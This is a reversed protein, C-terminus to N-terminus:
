WDILDTISDANHNCAVEAMASRAKDFHYRVDMGKHAPWDLGAMACGEVNLLTLLADALIQENATLRSM